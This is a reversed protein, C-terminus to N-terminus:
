TSQGKRWPKGAAAPPRLHQSAFILVLLTTIYPTMYTFERAVEDTRIYAVLFLGTLIGMTAVAAIRRTYLSYLGTLGLALAAVLLLARVSDDSRLQLAQALGFLGAGAAVGWPRWNGFILAALGIFGTGSPLAEQYRRSQEIVLFAGGMGALGGSIFLAQYKMRNVAVGLSDAANPKEGIERM